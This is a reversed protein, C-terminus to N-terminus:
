ILRCLRCESTGVIVKDSLMCAARMPIQIPYVPGCLVPHWWHYFCIMMLYFMDIEGESDQLPAAMPLIICNIHIFSSQGTSHKFHSSFEFMAGAATTAPSCESQLEIHLELDRGSLFTGSLEFCPSSGETVRGLDQLTQTRRQLPM